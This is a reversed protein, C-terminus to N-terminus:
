NFGKLENDENLKEILLFLEEKTLTLTENNKYFTFTDNKSIKFEAKAEKSLKYRKTIIGYGEGTLGKVYEHKMRENTDIKKSIKLKRHNMKLSDKEKDRKKKKHFFWMNVGGM